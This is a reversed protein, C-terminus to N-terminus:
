DKSVTISQVIHGCSHEGSVWGVRIFPNRAAELPKTASRYMASEPEVSRWVQGFRLREHDLMM